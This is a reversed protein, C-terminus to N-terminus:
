LGAGIHLAVAHGVRLVCCRRDPHAASAAASAESLTRGLFYDGSEPEIAVFDNLHSRELETRLREQYFREARQYLDTSNMIWDQNHFRGFDM